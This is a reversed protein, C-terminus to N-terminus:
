PNRLYLLHLRLWEELIITLLTHSLQKRLQVTEKSKYVVARNCVFSNRSCALCVATYVFITRYM